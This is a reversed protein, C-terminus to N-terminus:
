IGLSAMKKTLDKPVSNNQNHKNKNMWNEKSWIEVRSLVGFLYTEKTLGAYERLYGPLSIRGQKDFECEAAGSFFFRVFDRVDDDTLPLEKMKGELRGWEELNFVYLCNDLGKTIMFKEKLGERLKAPVIVRGKPDLNHQFEGYFM